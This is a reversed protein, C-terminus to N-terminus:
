RLLSLAHRLVLDLGTWGSRRRGKGVPEGLGDVSLAALKEYSQIRARLKQGDLQPAVRM